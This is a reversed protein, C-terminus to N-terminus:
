LEDHNLHYWKTSQIFKEAQNRNGIEKAPVGGVISYPKINKTVVANAAIISGDGITIGDLIIVNLGIWVDHGIIIEKKEQYRFKINHIGRKFPNKKSYFVPSTTFENIPHMGMGIKCGTSISTYNGISTNAIWTSNGIYTYKGVIVNSLKVDPFIRTFWGLRVNKTRSKLSVRPLKKNFISKIRWLLSYTIRDLGNKLNIM